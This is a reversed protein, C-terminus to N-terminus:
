LSVISPKYSICLPILNNSNLYNLNSKDYYIIPCIPIDNISPLNDSYYQHFESNKNNNFVFKGNINWGFTSKEGILLGCSYLPGGIEKKEDDKPLILIRDGLYGACRHDFFLNNLETSSCYRPPIRININKVNLKSIYERIEFYTKHWEEPDVVRFNKAFKARGNYTAIHFNLENINLNTAYKIMFFVSKLNEKNVTHTIKIKMDNKKALELNEMITKFSGKKRISDHISKKFGDVSFCIMDIKRFVYSNFLSTNFSGNTDIVIEFNMSKVLQIIELLNPHETPEGGILTIKKAGLKKVSILIKQLEDLEYFHNNRDGILCHKCGFSCNDTIYLFIQELNKSYFKKIYDDM